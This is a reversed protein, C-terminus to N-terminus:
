KGLRELDIKLKRDSTIIDQKILEEVTDKFRRSYYYITSMSYDPRLIKIKKPTFGMWFMLYLEPKSRGKVMSLKLM